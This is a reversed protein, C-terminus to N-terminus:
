IPKTLSVSFFNIGLYVIYECKDNITTMKWKKRAAHSHLEKASIIEDDDNMILFAHCKEVGCIWRTGDNTYEETKKYVYGNLELVTGLNSIVAVDVKPDSFSQNTLLYSSLKLIM